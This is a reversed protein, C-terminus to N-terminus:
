SARLIVLASRAAALLTELKVVSFNGCGKQAIKRWSVATDKWQRAKEFKAAVISKPVGNTAVIIEEYVANIQAKLRNKEEDAKPSVKQAANNM